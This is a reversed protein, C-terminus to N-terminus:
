DKAKSPLESVAAIGLDTLKWYNKKAVDFYSKKAKLHRIPQSFDTRGDWEMGRFCTFLHDIRFSEAGGHLTLWGAAVLYKDEVTQPNKESAYEKWPKQGDPSMKFDSLFQPKRPTRRGAGNMELESEEPGGEIQEAEEDSNVVKERSSGDNELHNLQRRQPIGPGLTALAESVTSFGKRLTEGGGKFRLIVVTMEEQEELRSSAKSKSDRAM